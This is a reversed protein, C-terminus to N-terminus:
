ADPKHYDSSDYTQENLKPTDYFYAEYNPKPPTSPAATQHHTDTNHNSASAVRLSM